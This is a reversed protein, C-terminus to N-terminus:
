EREVSEETERTGIGAGECGELLLVEVGGDLVSVGVCLLDLDDPLKNYEVDEVDDDGAAAGDGWVGSVGFNCVKTV